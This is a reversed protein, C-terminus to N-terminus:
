DNENSCEDTDTQMEIVVNEYVTHIGNLDIIHLNTGELWIKKAVM